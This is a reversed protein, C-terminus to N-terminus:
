FPYLASAAIGIISMFFLWSGQIHTSVARSCAMPLQEVVLPPALGTVLHMDFRSASFTVNGRSHYAESGFSVLGVNSDASVLGNRWLYQLLPSIDATFGTENTAAVWTFVDTGRGNRGEYLVFPIGGLEQTFCTRKPSFGLPQASGFKALWIMIETEATTENKSSAYNRDAFIDFAVNASVDMDALGSADIRLGPLAMSGPGLSWRATLSLASINSLPTPLTPSTLKVHPYSHVSQPNSSWAWTAWFAPPSDQVSICQFGTGDPNWANPNFTLNDLPSTYSKQDCVTADYAGAVHIAWLAVPLIRVALPM